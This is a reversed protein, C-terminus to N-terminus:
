QAEVGLEKSIERLQELDVLKPGAIVTDIFSREERMRRDQVTRQPEYPKRNGRNALSAIGYNPLVLVEIGATQPAWILIVNRGLKWLSHLARDLQEFHEQAAHVLTESFSRQGTLDNNSGTHSM